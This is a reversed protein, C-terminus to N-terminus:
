KVAAVAAESVPSAQNGWTTRIYTLVAAIDANSLKGEFSPM